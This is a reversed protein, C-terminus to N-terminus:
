EVRRMLGQSSFTVRGHCTVSWDEGWDGYRWGFCTQLSRQEAILIVLLEPINLEIYTAAFFNTRINQRISYRLKYFIAAIFSVTCNHM